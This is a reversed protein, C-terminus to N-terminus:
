EEVKVYLFGDEVRVEYTEIEIAESELSKGTVVNTRWGHLPCTLVEGDIEGGEYSSGQHPCVDEIVYFKGNVKCIAVPVGDIEVALPEDDPIDEIPCVKVFDDM